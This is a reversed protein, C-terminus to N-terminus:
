SPYNQNHYVIPVCVDKYLGSFLNIALSDICYIHFKLLIHNYTIPPDKVGLRRFMIKMRAHDISVCTKKNIDM